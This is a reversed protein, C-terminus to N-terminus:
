ECNAQGLEEVEHQLAVVQRTLQFNKAIISVFILVILLDVIIRRRDFLIKKMTKDQGEARLM